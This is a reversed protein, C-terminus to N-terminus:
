KPFDVTVGKDPDYARRGVPRHNVDYFSMVSLNLLKLAEPQLNSQEFKKNKRQVYNYCDDWAAWDSAKVDMNTILSNFSKLVLEKERFAFRKEVEEFGSMLFTRSFLTYTVLLLITSTAVLLLVKLRINM